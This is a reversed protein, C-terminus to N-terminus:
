KCKIYYVTIYGGVTLPLKETIVYRAMLGESQKKYQDENLYQVVKNSPGNKVWYQKGMVSLLLGNTKLVPSHVPRLSLFSQAKM